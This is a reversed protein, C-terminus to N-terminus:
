EFIEEWEDSDIMRQLWEVEDYYGHDLFRGIENIIASYSNGSSNRVTKAGGVYNVIIFERKTHPKNKYQFVKYEISDVNHQVPIIAESVKKVFDIKNKYVSM